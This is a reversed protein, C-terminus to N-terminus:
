YVRLNALRVSDKQEASLKYDYNYLANEWDGYMANPLVIFRDGFVENLSDTVFDRRYTKQGEYLDTFDNLNDGVLLVVNYNKAVKKRREEKNSQDTKLLIHEYQVQPFDLVKLNAMTADMENEKRNSIYFIAVKEADAYRLFGVAGPVAMAQHKDSWEKWTQGSYATNEKILKANYASNDLVTEDIDVIVAYPVKSPKKLKQALKWSALNYAQYCLAKYEAAKQQYLVSLMSQQNVSNQKVDDLAVNTYTVSFMSMALLGTVILSAFLLSRMM